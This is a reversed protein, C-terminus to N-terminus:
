LHFRSAQAGLQARVSAADLCDYPEALRYGHGPVKRVELGLDELERLARSVGARSVGLVRELNRGSHFSADSVLRLLDFIKAHM